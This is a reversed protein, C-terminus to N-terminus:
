DAKAVSATEVSIQSAATMEGDISNGSNANIIQGVLADTEHSALKYVDTTYAALDGSVFTTLQDGRDDRIDVDAVMSLGIRLPHAKVQEADLAIRVPLRQVVKIWNGTANEPPLLSFASGTGAELGVIRGHYEVDSGYMDATLMVPQGIRIHHLQSEKFNADVWVQELPIVAMLPKGSAIRQGLQVSRKTVFGDVPSPIRTRKLNLFAARVKSASALVEPHTAISTNETLAVNGALAERAALLDAQASKVAVESHNLEEFSVAGTDGLGSRRRLDAEARALAVEQLDIQALLADNSTFLARVKRVTQALEAKVQGLAVKADTDDLKVLMQGAKVHQTADAYIAVVTGATQPTVQVINGKVYADDTEEYYRGVLTWYAFWMIGIVIFITSALLMQRRRKMNAEPIPAIAPAPTTSDTM